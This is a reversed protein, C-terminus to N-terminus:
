NQELTAAELELKPISIQKIPAVISKSNVYHTAITGDASITRLYVVASVALPSADTFTHLEHTGDANPVLCRPIEIPPMNQFHEMWQQIEHYKEKSLLQDWKLGQKIVKQLNCRLRFAFPSIKGIPDFLSVAMSLLKRQNINEKEYSLKPKAFLIQDSEPNWTQGLIRQLKLVGIIDDEQIKEVVAPNNSLFKNLNFKGTRLVHKLETATKAAEEETPFTQIFDDMYFQETISDFKEPHQQRNNKACMQLVFIACDPSCTAGFAILQYKSTREEEHDIWLFRLADQDEERIGVQMLMAEIDATIAVEYHRFRLLLGHLNCLLDRGMLLVDNM